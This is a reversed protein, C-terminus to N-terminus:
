EFVPKRLGGRVLKRKQRTEGLIKRRHYASTETTLCGNLVCDAILGSALRGEFYAGQLYGFYKRSTGEGAFFVRQGSPSPLDPDPIPARIANQQEITAGAGWNMFTGRFLPDLTWRHFKIAIPDPINPGYMTKLVGMLADKVESEPQLEAQYAQDSTLTVMLINSGPFFGEASLSQWVAYYGREDPDAYLSFQTDNVSIAPQFYYSYSVETKNWFQHPFQVFIKLYTAMHFNAIADKKWEPLEPEFVVDNHQLVGISFTCLAFEAEILTGDATLVNVGNSGYFVHTVTQNYLIHDNFNPIEDAQGQIVTRFGRKDYVFNNSENGFGEFNYTFSNINQIFSSQVPPEAYEWDFSFYEVTKEYPTQATWGALNLGARFNLDIQGREQRLDSIKEAKPFIDDEFKAFAEELKGEDHGNEDFYDISSWNSYRNTVNYKQALAWIPNTGLGQIWNGGVEIPYGGISSQKLRGGVEPLAEIILFDTINRELALAKAATVGTLGAGLIVVKTKLDTRNQASVLLPIFAPLLFLPASRM